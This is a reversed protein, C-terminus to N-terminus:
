FYFSKLQCINDSHNWVFALKVHVAEMLDVPCLVISAFAAEKQDM